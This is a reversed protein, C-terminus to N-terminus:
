LYCESIKFIRTSLLNFYMAAAQLEAKRALIM